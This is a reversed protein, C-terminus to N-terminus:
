SDLPALLSFVVSSHAQLTKPRRIPRRRRRFHDKRDEVVKDLIGVHSATLLYFQV